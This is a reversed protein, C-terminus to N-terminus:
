YIFGFLWLPIKNAFGIETDDAAIIHNKYHRVQKSTKSKGGVEILMENVLFDGKKPLTINQGSNLMQNLFFSERISGTDPLSNLAYAFNTNELYIKDPKQLRSVGKGKQSINNLLRAKQLDQLWHYISDRSVDLKRSLASINPKFPVSEAIVGLLKKIKHAVGGDYNKIYALDSELVTNLVMQLRQPIEEPLSEAIIPLYGFKLYNRFLPIPRIDMEEIIYNALNRHERVIQEFSFAEIKPSEILILYERFSMGPLEYTIVRRSLDAEGRYIDLASSATFVIKLDPFGDYINKLERSWNPYKHVEDIFLHRGGNLYFIEATEFLSHTYFWNHDATIYLVNDKNLNLGYKIKQLILTTKGAGRPGKIALMRQDWNIKKYLFRFFSSSVQKIVNNHFTFLPDM